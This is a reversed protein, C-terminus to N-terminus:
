KLKWLQDKILYLKDNKKLYFETAHNRVLSDYSIGDEDYDNLDEGDIIFNKLYSEADHYKNTYIDVQIALGGESDQYVKTIEPHEAILSKLKPSLISDDKKNYWFM